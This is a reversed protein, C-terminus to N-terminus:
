KASRRARREAEAQRRAAKGAERKLAGQRSRIQHITEAGGQHSPLSITGLLHSIDRVLGREETLARSVVEQGASGTTFYGREDIERALRDLRDTLRCALELNAVERADLEWDDPAESWIKSWLRRGEKGLISRPKPVRSAAM